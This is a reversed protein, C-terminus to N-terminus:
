SRPRAAKLCIASSIVDRARGLSLRASNLGPSAAKRDAYVCGIVKGEIAIPLVAFARPDLAAALVSGDYSRDRTRDILVDGRNALVALIPEDSHDLAFHFRNLVDAALPGSALRGRMLTRRENVLAFVVSDFGAAQIADLMYKILESLEFKNRELTHKATAIARDLQELAATDFVPRSELLHRAHEAQVSLRLKEIPINLGGFTEQIEDVAAEVIRTLKGVPIPAVGGEARMICRLRFSDISGGTRYLSHTLDRAYDTVSALCNDVPSGFRAMTASMCLQVQAPMNWARAVQLGVDDWTFDLFRLCAARASIKEDYMAVIMQSYEHPCHCAVLVEGLNRFLGCVYAEEPNRFGAAMALDRSHVANLAALLMLERLGPSGNAFHDIYRIASLLNRVTDWGLMTIAHAVSLIPRESRNYLVSNAIRLIESTIGLDRLIARAIDSFSSDSDYTREMIAGVHECFAPIGEKKLIRGVCAELTEERRAPPSNVLRATANSIDPGGSEKEAIRASTQTGHANLNLRLKRISRRRGFRKCHPQTSFLLLGNM